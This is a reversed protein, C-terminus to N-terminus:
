KGGIFKRLSRIPHKGYELKNTRSKLEFIRQEIESISRRLDKKVYPNTIALNERKAAHRADKLLVDLEKRIAPYSAHLASGLPDLQHIRPNRQDAEQAAELKRQIVNVRETYPKLKTLLWRHIVPPAPEPVAESAAPAPPATEAAPLEAPAAAEPEPRAEATAQGAAKQERGKKYEEFDVVKDPPPEPPPKPLRGEKFLQFILDERAQHSLGSWHERAIDREAEGLAERYRGMQDEGVKFGAAKEAAEKEMEEKEQEEQTKGKKEQQERERKPIPAAEFSPMHLM